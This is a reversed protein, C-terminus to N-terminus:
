CDSSIEYSRVEWNNKLATMLYTDEFSQSFANFSHEKLHGEKKFGLKEVLKLSAINEPSINGEISNLGMQDFGYQIITGLAESMYGRKWHQPFLKAGAEARFRFPVFRWFGVDGLFASDKITWIGWRIQEKKLFSGHLYQILNQTESLTKHPVIGYGRMVKEDSYLEFYEKADKIGMARLTLRETLLTPVKLPFIM